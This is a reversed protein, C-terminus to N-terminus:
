CVVIGGCAGFTILISMEVAFCGHRDLVRPLIGDVKFQGDHGLGTLYLIWFQPISSWSDLRTDQASM